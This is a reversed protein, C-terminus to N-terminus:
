VAQEIVNYGTRVRTQINTLSVNGVYKGNEVLPKLEGTLSQELTQEQHLVYGDETLEVRLLGKASRKSVDGMPTKQQELCVDEGDIEAISFTQKYSMSFLDRTNNELSAYSGKGIVLNTVSFGDAIMRQYIEEQHSQSIAEGYILGVKPNILKMKGAETDVEEGGFTEWLIKLSGKVEDESLQIIEGNHETYYVGNLKICEDPKVFTYDTPNIHEDDVNLLVRYGCIVTLPTKLSSDPRFVFKAPLGSPSDKRDLIASMNRRAFVRLTRFYNETDSVYSMIGHSTEILERMVFEEAIDDPVDPNCYRFESLLRSVDAHESARVSSAAPESTEIPHQYYQEFFDMVAITDSGMFFLSHASSTRIAAEPGWYGRMGFEHVSIPLWNAYADQPSSLQGYYKAQQYFQDIKTATNTMPWVLGSVITEIYNVLWGFYDVTNTTTFLPLGIEYRTGEDIARVEIPLYGLDHLDSLHRLFLMHEEISGFHKMTRVATRRIVEEKPMKFFTEDWVDIVFQFAHAIGYVIIKGDSHQSFNMYANKRATFNSYSKKIKVTKGGVEREHLQSMGIKYSDVLAEAKLALM